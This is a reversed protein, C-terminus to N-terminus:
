AWHVLNASVAKGTRVPSNGPSDTAPACDAVKGSALEHQIVKLFSDDMEINRSFFPEDRDIKM